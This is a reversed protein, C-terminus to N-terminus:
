IAEKLKQKVAKGGSKVELTLGDVELTAYKGKSKWNYEFAYIPRFFLYLKEIRIQETLIDDAKVPKLMQSLYNRIIYSAKVKAPVVINEGTMIEETQQIEHKGYDVYKRCGNEEKGSDADLFIEKRLDEVCYEVGSISIKKAGRPTDHKVDNVTISMVVEEVEFEINRQRNYELHTTCLVYWFPEYRKESYSLEIDGTDPRSLISSILGFSGQRKEDARKRADEFSIKEDLCYIKQDVVQFDIGSM